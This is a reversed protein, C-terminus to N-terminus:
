LIAKLLTAGGIIISTLGILLRLKDRNLRKVILAALPASLSVGAALSLILHWNMAKNSLWFVVFGILSVPSESFSQIAVIVKEDVGSLLGGTTVMPGFGSGSLGKNFSGILSVLVMKFWSFTMHIEKSALVFFGTLTVLTGIYLRLYFSSIGLALKAGIFGGFLSFLSIVVAIRLTNGEGRLDFNRFKQHFYSSVLGGVFSAFLVSPITELPEFGLLLLLPTVTFGYGMGLSIDVLSASFSILFCLSLLVTNTLM